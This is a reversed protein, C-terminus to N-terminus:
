FPVDDFYDDFDSLGRQDWDYKPKGQWTYNGAGAPIHHKLYRSLEDHVSEYFKLNTNQILWSIYTPRDKIIELVTYGQHRGFPMVDDLGFRNKIKTFPIAM